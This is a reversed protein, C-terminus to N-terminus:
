RRRSAGVVWPRERTRRHAAPAPRATARTAPRVACRVGCVCRRWEEQLRCLLSGAGVQRLLTCRRGPLGTSALPGCGTYRRGQPCMSGLPLHLSSELNCRHTQVPGLLHCAEASRGGCKVARANPFRTSWLQRVRVTHGAGGHEVRQGEIGRVWVASGRQGAPVPKFAAVPPQAVHRAPVNEGPPLQVVGFGAQWAQGGALM